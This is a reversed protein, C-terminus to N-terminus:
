EKCTNNITSSPSAARSQECTKEGQREAGGGGLEKKPTKPSAVCCGVGFAFRFFVVNEDNVKHWKQKPKGRGHSWIQVKPVEKFELMPLAKLQLHIAESVRILTKDKRTTV